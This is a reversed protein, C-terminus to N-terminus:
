INRALDGFAQSESKVEEDYKDQKIKPYDATSRKEPLGNMKGEVRIHGNELAPESVMKIEDSIVLSKGKEATYKLELERSHLEELHKEIKGEFDDDFVDVNPKAITIIIKSISTLGFVKKLSARSQVVNIKIDGFKREITPNAALGEFLRAASNVSFTDGKSYTQVAIKHTKLNFVFYFAKSNPFLNEPISIKSIDDANADQLNKVDFWNGDADIKTFTTIVGQIEGDERGSKDVLSIIGYRDGRTKVPEKMRYFDMILDFYIEENHPHARINIQGGSIKLSKGV